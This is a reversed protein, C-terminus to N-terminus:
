IKYGGDPDYDDYETLNGDADYTLGTYITGSAAQKKVDEPDITQWAGMLETVIHKINGLVENKEEISTEFGARTLSVNIFVYLEALDYSFEVDLNLSEYLVAACEKAKQLAASLQESRPKTAIANDINQILLEHNIITLELPTASNVMEPTIERM